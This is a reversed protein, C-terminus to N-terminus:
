TRSEMIAHVRDQVATKRVTKKLLDISADINEAHFKDSGFVITFAENGYQSISIPYYKKFLTLVYSSSIRRFYANPDFTKALELVENSKEEYEFYVSMREKLFEETSLLDGLCVILEDVTTKRFDQLVIRKKYVEICAYDGLLCKFSYLFDFKFFSGIKCSYTSLSPEIKLQEQIQKFMTKIQKSKEGTSYLTNNHEILADVKKEELFSLFVFVDKQKLAIKNSSLLQFVDGKDKTKKLRITSFGNSIDVRQIIERKEVKWHFTPKKEKLYSLFESEFVSFVSEDM